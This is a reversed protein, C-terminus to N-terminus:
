GRNSLGQEIVVIISPFTNGYIQPIKQKDMWEIRTISEETQPVTKEDKTSEM